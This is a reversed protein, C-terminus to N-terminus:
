FIEYLKPSWPTRGEWLIKAKNERLLNKPKFDEPWCGLHPWLLWYTSANEKQKVEELTPAWIVQLDYHFVRKAHSKMAGAGEPCPAYIQHSISVEQLIKSVLLKGLDNKVLVDLLLLSGFSAIAFGKFLINWKSDLFDEFVNVINLVFFPIAAINLYGGLGWPAMLIVFGLLSIAPSALLLRGFLTINARSFARYMSVVILIIYLWISKSHSLTEMVTSLGYKSKYPTNRGMYWIFGFLFITVFLYIASEWYFKSRDKKLSLAILVPFFLIFQERVLCGISLIGVLILIRIPKSLSFIKESSFAVLSIAGALMIFKEQVAPLSVLLHSWPYILIAAFCITWFHANNKEALTAWAKSLAFALFYFVCTVFFANWLHLLVFSNETPLYFIYVLLPLFPRYWGRAILDQPLWDKLFGFYGHEKLGPLLAIFNSDDMLGYFPPIFTFLALVGLLAILFYAHTRM